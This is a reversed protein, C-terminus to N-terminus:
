GIVFIIVFTTITKNKNKITPLITNILFLFDPQNICSTDTDNAITKNM